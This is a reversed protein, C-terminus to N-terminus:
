RQPSSPPRLAGALDNQIRPLEEAFYERRLSKLIEIDNELAAQRAEERIAAQAGTGSLLAVDEVLRTQLRSIRASVNTQGVRAASAYQPFEGTVTAYLGLAEHLLGVADATKQNLVLNEAEAELEQAETVAIETAAMRENRDRILNEAENLKMHATENSKDYEVAKNFADRGDEYRSERIAEDGVKIYHASLRASVNTRGPAARLVKEYEEIAREFDGADFFLDGIRERTAPSLPGIEALNNYAKEIEQDRGRAIYFELAGVVYDRQQNEALEYPASGRLITYITDAVANVSRSVDAGASGRAIGDFGIGVEYEKTIVENQGNADREIQAFYARADISRRPTRKLNLNNIAVEMDNYYVQQWRQEAQTLPASVQAVLKSLVGLRYVFYPDISRGRMSQLVEIEAEIAAVPSIDANPIMAYLERQTISAGQKAEASFRDIPLGADRSLVRLGALVITNSASPGWAYTPASTALMAAAVCLAAIRKKTHHVRTM